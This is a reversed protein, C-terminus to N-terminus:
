SHDVQDTDDPATESPVAWHAPQSHTDHATAASPAASLHEELFKDDPVTAVSPTELSHDEPEKDDPVKASVAASHVTPDQDDRDMVEVEESSHDRLDWDHHIERERSPAIRDLEDRGTEEVEERSVVSGRGDPCRTYSRGWDWGDRVKGEVAGALELDV